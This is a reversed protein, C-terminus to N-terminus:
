AGPVADADGLALPRTAGADVPGLDEVIVGCSAALLASGLLISITRRMSPAVM